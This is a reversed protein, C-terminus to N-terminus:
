FSSNLMQSAGAHLLFSIRRRLWYFWRHSVGASNVNEYGRGSWNSEGGAMGVTIIKESHLTETVGFNLAKFTLRHLPLLAQLFAAGHGSM